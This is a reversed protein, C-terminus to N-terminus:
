SAGAKAEQISPRSSDGHRAVEKEGWKKSPYMLPVPPENHYHWLHVCHVRFSNVGIINWEV